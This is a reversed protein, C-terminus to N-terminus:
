LSSKSNPGCPIISFVVGLGLIADQLFVNIKKLASPLLNGVKTTTSLILVIKLAESNKM